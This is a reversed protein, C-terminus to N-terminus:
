FIFLNLIFAVFIGCTFSYIALIITVQPEDFYTNQQPLREMNQGTSAPTEGPQPIGWDDESLDWTNVDYVVRQQADPHYETIDSDAESDEFDFDFLEHVYENHNRPLKM